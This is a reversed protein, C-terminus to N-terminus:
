FSTDYAFNLLHFLLSHSPTINCLLASAYPHAHGEGFLLIFPPGCIVNEPCIWRASPLPIERTFSCDSKESWTHLTSMQRFRFSFEERSAFVSNLPKFFKMQPSLCPAMAWQWCTIAWRWSFANWFGRTRTSFGSKLLQKNESITSLFVDEPTWIKTPQELFCILTM